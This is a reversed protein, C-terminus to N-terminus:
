HFDIAVGLSTAVWLNPVAATSTGALRRLQLRNIIGSSRVIGNSMLKDIEVRHKRKTRSNQTADLWSNESYLVVRLPFYPNPVTRLWDILLARRETGNFEFLVESYQTFGRYETSCRITNIIM